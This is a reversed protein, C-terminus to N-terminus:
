RDEGMGAAKGSPEGISAASQINRRLFEQQQLRAIYQQRERQRDDSNDIFTRMGLITKHQHIRVM